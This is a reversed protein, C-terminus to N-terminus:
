VMHVTATSGLMGAGVAVASMNNSEAQVSHSRVSALTCAVAALTHSSAGVQGLGAVVGAAESAVVEEAM